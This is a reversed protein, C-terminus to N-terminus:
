LIHRYKVSESICGWSEGGELTYIQLQERKRRKMLKCRLLIHHLPASFSPFKPFANRGAEEERHHVVDEKSNRECLKQRPLLFLPPLNPSSFHPTSLVNKVNNPIRTIRCVRKLWSGTRYKVRRFFPAKTSADAHKKNRRIDAHREFPLINIESVSNGRYTRSKTLRSPIFTLVYFM